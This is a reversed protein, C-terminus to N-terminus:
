RLHKSIRRSGGSHGGGSEGSGAMEDLKQIHPLVHKKFHHVLKGVASSGRDFINGGVMRDFSDSDFHPIPNSAKSELVLDKTLVGTFISSSGTQTVFFGSNMTCIVVEPTISYPFQNYVQLNMQLQFQGLSGGSLYSPLSFDYVPDLVLISGITAVQSNAPNYYVPDSDYCVGGFEYFTQNSGNRVSISFLDNPLCSALLGSANNFNVSVNQITLFSSAYNWNQQSMPVRVVVFIKDPIQSLQVSQTVIRSTQYGQITTNQNFTTLFRPFDSYPVINRTSLKSYQDPQLSLFNFLLKTNTFGSYTVGNVTGGLTINTLYSTLGSLDPLLSSVSSFVRTCQSDILLNFAMTNVGLLGAKNNSDTNIFPSLAIFPETFTAQIVFTWTDTTATSILHNDAYVGGVYHFVNSLTLPFAGRPIFSEDYGMNNYSAMPNSNTDLCDSYTGYSSDPFSPTQSNLRNLKRKDMMRLLIDKIDKLNTSTSVNNITVQTTTFLSNLPFAQFSLDQGWTCCRDGAPVNTFNLTFTVTSQIHVARDIVINESPIQCNFTISSNSQTNAAYQQYTSQSASSHVGFIEKDTIDSIRSDEISVCQIQEAM